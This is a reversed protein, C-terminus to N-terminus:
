DNSLERLISETVAPYECFPELLHLNGLLHERGGDIVCASNLLCQVLMELKEKLNEGLTEENIVKLRDSAMDAYLAHVPYNHELTELILECIKREDISLGNMFTKIIPHDRNIIYSIGERGQLRSWSHVLKDSTTTRGRYTYVRRSTGVIKDIIRKLNQRVEEPPHATSKKIDITWLHDLSSPIDVRVRALKFVEEQGVLRFWTGWIILRKNRYIYFGQNRRLGDEGGALQLDKPKLKSAHPLIFPKISIRHKEIEIFEDQLSQTATNMTLFPDSPEIPCENLYIEIKPLGAEGALYRHFVLSLHGRVSDMKEELARNISSEGACLRDLNHWIVLTGHAQNKLDTFLPLSELDIQDPVSLIWDERVAILDLDWCRASIIGSKSSLVTLKRCQSLSATKLGLGFRGLDNEERASLPDKSGHRMAQTLEDSSMGIGDDLVAVYPIDYPSFRVAIKRARASISNDIIDAIASQISYGVSRMSEILTPAYPPVKLESM